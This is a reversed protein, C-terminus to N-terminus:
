FRFPCDLPIIVYPYLCFYFTGSRLFQALYGSFLLRLRFADRILGM